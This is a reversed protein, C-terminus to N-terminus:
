RRAACVICYLSRLGPNLVSAADSFTKLIIHPYLFAQCCLYEIYDLHTLNCLAATCVTASAPNQPRRKFIDLQSHFVLFASTWYPQAAAVVKVAMIRLIIISVLFGILVQRKREMCRKEIALRGRSRNHSGRKISKEYSGIGNPHEDYTSLM